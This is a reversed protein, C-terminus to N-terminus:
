GGAPRLRKAQLRGAFGKWASAAHGPSLKGTAIYDFFSFPEAGSTIVTTERVLRWRSRHWTMPPPWPRRFGTGAQHGGWDTGAVLLPNSLGSPLRCLGGFGGPRRAFRPAGTSEVRQYRIRSAFARGAAV